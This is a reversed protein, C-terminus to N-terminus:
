FLMQPKEVCEISISKASNHCRYKNDPIGIM